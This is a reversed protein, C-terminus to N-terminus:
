AAKGLYDALAGAEHERTIILTGNGAYDLYGGIILSGIIPEPVSIYRRGALMGAWVPLGAGHVVYTAYAGLLVFEGHAFNFIGTMSAIIGLRLVVLVVIAGFSLVEFIANSASEM